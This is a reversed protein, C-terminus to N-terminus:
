DKLVLSIDNIALDAPRPAITLEARVTYTGAGTSTLACGDMKGQYRDSHQSGVTSTFSDIRLTAVFPDCMVSDVTVGSPDVLEISYQADLQGTYSVDLQTWITLKQSAGLALQISGAGADHFPIRGLETGTDCASLAFLVLGRLTSRM